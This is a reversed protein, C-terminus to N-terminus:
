AVLSKTVVSVITFAGIFDSGNVIARGLPSAGDDNSTGPLLDWCKGVITDAAQGALRHFEPNAYVIREVPQLESVAIAVPLHDLFQRFRESELAEALDPTELLQQLDDSREEDGNIDPM